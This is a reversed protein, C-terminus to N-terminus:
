STANPRGVCFWESKSLKDATRSEPQLEVRSHGGIDTLLAVAVGIFGTVSDMYSSGLVIDEAKM